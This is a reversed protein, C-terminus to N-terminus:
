AHSRDKPDLTLATLAGSTLLLALIPGPDAGEAADLARGLPLGRSLASVFGAGGPPLVHPVPDYDPRTVLVDEAVAAPKPAGPRTAFRHISLVPWASRLLRTAPALTLRARSLVDEDLGALASAELGPADAAHYSQRLVLELRTVDGLYGLHALRPEAELFGPFGAGYLMMRPSDPPSQRLFAGAVRAFSEAGLLSAVAPFGTELAARLSVAVNNRYVAFRRGAARGAGDRLGAPVPQAADLVGRRFVGQSVTM